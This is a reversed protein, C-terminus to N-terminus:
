SNLFTTLQARVTKLHICQIAHMNHVCAAQVNELQDDILVTTLPSVEIGAAAVKQSVVNWMDTQPKVANVYASIIINDSAVYDFIEPFNVKLLEFSEKGYNSVIFVEHGEKKCEKLMDLIEKKVRQLSVLTPPHFFIDVMKHALVHERDSKFHHRHKKLVQTVYSHMETETHIGKFIHEFILPLVDKYPDILSSKQDNVDYHLVNYIDKKLHKPTKFHSFFYTAIAPLGLFYAAARMDSEILVGNLDFLVAKKVYTKNDKKLYLKSDVHCITLVLFVCSIVSVWKARNIYM